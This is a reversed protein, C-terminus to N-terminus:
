DDAADTTYLPGHNYPGINWYDMKAFANSEDELKKAADGIM